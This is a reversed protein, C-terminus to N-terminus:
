GFIATPRQQCDVCTATYPVADLREFAIACGCRDCRGYTGDELRALARRITAALELHDHAAVPPLGDAAVRAAREEEVALLHRLSTLVQARQDETLHAVVHGVVIDTSHPTDISADM